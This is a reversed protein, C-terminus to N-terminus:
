QAEQLSPGPNSWEPFEQQSPNSWQLFQIWSQVPKRSCFSTVYCHAYKRGQASLTNSKYWRASSNSVDPFRAECIAWFLPFNPLNQFFFSPLKPPKSFFQPVFPQTHNPEQVRVPSFYWRWFKGSLWSMAVIIVLYNLAGSCGNVISSDVNREKKWSKQWNPEDRLSKSIIHWVTVCAKFPLVGQNSNKTM